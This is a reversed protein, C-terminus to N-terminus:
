AHSDARRYHSWHHGAQNKACHRLGGGPERGLAVRRWVEGLVAGDAALITVAVVMLSIGIPDNFGAEAELVARAIERADDDGERGSLVPKVMEIYWDCFEHWFFHWLVQAAEHFRYQAIAANAQEACANLAAVAAEAAAGPKEREQGLIGLGHM